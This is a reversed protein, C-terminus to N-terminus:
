ESDDKVAHAAGSGEGPLLDVRAIYGHAPGSFDKAELARAHPTLALAGLFFAVLAGIINKHRVKAKM